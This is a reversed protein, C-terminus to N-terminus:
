VASLYIARGAPAQISFSTSATKKYLVHVPQSHMWLQKTTTAVHTTAELFGLGAGGYGRFGWGMVLMAVRADM